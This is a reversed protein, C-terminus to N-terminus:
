AFQVVFRLKSLVYLHLHKSMKWSTKKSRHRIPMNKVKLHKLLVEFKKYDVMPCGHSLIEFFAVFQVEKQKYEGALGCVVQKAMSAFKKSAWIRCAKM